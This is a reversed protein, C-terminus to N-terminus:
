IRSLFSIRQHVPRYRSDHINKSQENDRDPAWYDLVLVSDLIGRCRVHQLQDGVYQHFFKDTTESFESVAYWIQNLESDELCSYEGVVMDRIDFSHQQLDFYLQVLTEFTVYEWLKGRMLWLTKLRLPKIDIIVHM